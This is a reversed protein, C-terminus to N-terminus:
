SLSRVLRIQEDIKARESLLDVLAPTLEEEKQVDTSRFEGCALEYNPLDPREDSFPPFRYCNGRNYQGVRYWTCDECYNDLNM